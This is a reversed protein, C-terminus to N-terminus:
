TGLLVAPLELFHCVLLDHHRAGCPEYAVRRQPVEACGTTCFNHRQRPALWAIEMTRAMDREIEGIGRLARRDRRLQLARRM